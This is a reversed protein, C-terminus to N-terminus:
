VFWDTNKHQNKGHKQKPKILLAAVAVYTQLYLSSYTSKRSAIGDATLAGPV